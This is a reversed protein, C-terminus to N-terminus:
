KQMSSIFNLSFLKYGVSRGTIPQAAEAINHMAKIIDLSRQSRGRGKKTSTGFYEGPM